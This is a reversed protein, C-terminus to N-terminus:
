VLIARAEAEEREASVSVLEREKSRLANELSSLENQAVLLAALPSSV